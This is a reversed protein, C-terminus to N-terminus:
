KPSISVMVGIGLDPSADTLGKIVYGQLKTNGSTKQTVYVMLERGEVGSSTSAQRLDLMVGGSTEQSFKYSGGVSGYWVNNLNVGAPSGMMRYGLTALATTKDYTKYLDAQMAYDMKGTGLGKSDDATGFKIKGTIDMVTLTSSDNLVNYSLGAVIDGLGSNTTPAGVSRRVLRGSPDVSVVTGGSPATVRIYPVTLKFVYPGSEYKGIVPIYTIDTAQTGGYKGSSYDVGTTVTAQSDAAHATGTIAALVVSILIKTGKM